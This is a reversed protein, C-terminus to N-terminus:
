APDEDFDGATRISDDTTPNIILDGTIHLDLTGAEILEMTGMDVCETISTTFDMEWVIVQDHNADEREAVRMLPTFLDGSLGQVKGWIANLVPEYLEFSPTEDRLEDFACYLTVTINGKQQYNAINVNYPTTGQSTWQIDSFGIFVAPFNFAYERPENNTQNNWKAIHKITALGEISDKIANYLVLKAGM